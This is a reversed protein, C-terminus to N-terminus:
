KLYEEVFKDFSKIEKELEIGAEVTWHHQKGNYINAKIFRDRAAMLTMLREGFSEKM